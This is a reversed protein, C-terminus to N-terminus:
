FVRSKKSAVPERGGHKLYKHQQSAWANSLLVGKLIIYCNIANFIRQIDTVHFSLSYCKVQRPLYHLVRDRTLAASAMVSCQIFFSNTNVSVDLIQGTSRELLNNEWYLWQSLKGRDVTHSIIFVLRATVENQRGKWSHFLSALRVFRFLVACFVISVRPKKLYTDQRLACPLPRHGLIIKTPCTPRSLSSSSLLSEEPVHISFSPIINTTGEFRRTREWRRMSPSGALCRLYARGRLITPFPSLSLSNSTVLWYDM